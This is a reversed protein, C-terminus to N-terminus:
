QSYLECYRRSFEANSFQDFSKKVSVRIDQFETLSDLIKIILSDAEEEKEYLYGNKGHEIIDSQCGNKTAIPIVGQHMAELLVLPFGESDSTLLFIDFDTMLEPADKRFGLFFLRGEFEPHNILYNQVYKGYEDEVVSGGIWVFVVDNRQRLVKEAISLFRIPNKPKDLRAVNGIIKVNEPLNLEKRLKGEEVKKPPIISNPIIVYQKDRGIKWEKAKRQDNTCLLVIKDCFRSAFREAFILIKRKLGTYQEIGWWGHVTYIVNKVGVTKAAIRGLIGAKSSHIHVIDYKGSKILKRLEFFAKIDKFPSIERVLNKVIHVRVGIKQLEPILMGNEPGCAVEIEFNGPYFQKLGYVLTYLVKQGGAWDSRTIIQLVRKKSKDM